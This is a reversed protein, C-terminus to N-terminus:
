LASLKATTSSTRLARAREDLLGDLGVALYRRRWKGLTHQVTGIQGAIATNSLWDAALLVIRSRMARATKLRKSWAVLQARDEFTISLPILPRGKPM